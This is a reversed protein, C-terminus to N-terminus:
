LLGPFDTQKAPPPPSVIRFLPSLRILSTLYAGLTVYGAFLPATIQIWTGRKLDKELVGSLLIVLLVALTSVGEGSLQPHSVLDWVDRPCRVPFPQHQSWASVWSHELSSGMSM